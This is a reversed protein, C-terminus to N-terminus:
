PGIAVVAARALLPDLDAARAVGRAMLEPRAATIFPAHAPWTAVSTLGAGARAAAQAALLAAGMMGEAGGVILVHGYDGKHASRPRPRLLFEYVEPAIRAAVPEARFYLAQPLDLGAFDIIGACDPGAGTYLGPKLGIFTVTLDARVAAGLVRGSDAHLGSPLDIALVHAPSTNITEIAARWAGTIERDLGIGFLADVIVDGDDFVQKQIQTQVEGGQAAYAQAAQAAAGRLKAADGLQIVRVDFGAAHALRALVYGDGGNNGVGCLVAIRQAQPWRERLANFAASGAREMLDLSPIGYEETALRDLERLEAARYLHHPLSQM